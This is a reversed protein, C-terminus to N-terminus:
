LKRGLYREVERKEWAGNFFPVVHFVSAGHALLGIGWGLAPWFFWLHHPSVTLNLITLGTIVIVYQTLHIFFGKKRRVHRFALAEDPRVNAFPQTQDMDPERLRNLDIEFVAALANASELSPVQGRELRQVTRVSLGSVQALQEQSWGRQLRMKQILM